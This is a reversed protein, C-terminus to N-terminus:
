PNPNLPKPHLTKPHLPKSDSQASCSRILTPAKGARHGLDWAGVLAALGQHELGSGQARFGLGGCLGPLAEDLNMPVMKARRNTTRRSGVM